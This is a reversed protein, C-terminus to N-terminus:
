AASTIGDVWAHWQPHDVNIAYDGIWDGETADGRRERPLWQIERLYRVDIDNSSLVAATGPRLQLSTIFTLPRADLPLIVTNIDFGLENTKGNGMMSTKNPVWANAFTMFDTSCLIVDAMGGASYIKQVTAALFASLTYSAGAAAVYNSGSNYSKIIKRLGKMKGRNGSAAPVEGEGYYFTNEIDRITEVLKVARTFGMVSNANPPLAVNQIAQAKGGIQVAEQFTQVVQTIGTQSVRTAQQDIEAGTRANGILNITDAAAFAVATSGERARRITLTNPTTTLVPVAIVEVREMASADAKILELVDGVQFPSADAIPLSTAVNTIGGTGVVYSRGRVNYSNITYVESTAQVHPLRAFLPRENVFLERETARIVTTQEPAFEIISLIGVTDLAM